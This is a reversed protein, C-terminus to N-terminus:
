RHERAIKQPLSLFLVSAVFVSLCITVCDFERKAVSFMLMKNVTACINFYCMYQLESSLKLIAKSDRTNARALVDHCVLSRRSRSDASDCKARTSRGPQKRKTAM